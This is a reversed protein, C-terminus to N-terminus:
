GNTITTFSIANVAHVALQLPWDAYNIIGKIPKIIMRSFLLNNGEYCSTTVSAFWTWSTDVKKNSSKHQANVRQCKFPWRDGYNSAM